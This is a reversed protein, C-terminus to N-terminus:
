QSIVPIEPQPVLLGPARATFGDLVISVKKLQFFNIQGYMAKNENTQGFHPNFYRSGCLRSTTKETTSKLKHIINKVEVKDDPTM